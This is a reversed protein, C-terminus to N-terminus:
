VRSAGASGWGVGGLGLVEGRHHQLVGEADDVRLLGGFDQRKGVLAAHGYDLVARVARPPHKAALVLRARVERHM